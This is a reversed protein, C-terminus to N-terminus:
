VVLSLVMVGILGMISIISTQVCWIKLTQPFTLSFYEKVMWFSADTPPDCFMSGCGVALVMLEPSVGTQALLPLLIGASMFLAVTASGVTVRILATIVWALVLPSIPLGVVLTAVYKGVGSDVIVQKFAGGGGIILLIMAISKAAEVTSNMLEPMKKGVRFGFTYLSIFFAILLAMDTNGIFSLFTHAYSNEPVFFEILLSGAILIVPILATTVSIGFGPLEEEKFVKAIALGKPIESKNNKVLKYYLPGSVILAPIAIIIGYALTLGINAKFIGAVAVPGPHPPLFCHTVSIAALMPIGVELLPIEATAAITFIIPILVVFSVEWFLTIGVIFGTLAVAWTVNKRGFKEILTMSIRQAGGGDAMLRGFMAGLGLIIALHGLTGGVGSEISSITKMIPLGEAVGVVLCTLMLSLFGNLKFKVLLVFLFAIGVALIILPMIYNVGEEM